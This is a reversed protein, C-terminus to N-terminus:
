KSELAVSTVVLALERHDLDSAPLFKDVAFEISVGAPRVASAPIDATYNYEGARPCALSPLSGSSTRASLNVAGVKAFIVDPLHFHLVVKAGKEAAGAPPKLMVAFKSM